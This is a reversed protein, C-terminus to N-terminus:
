CLMERRSGPLPICRSSPTSSSRRDSTSSASFSPSSPRCPSLTYPCKSNRTSAASDAPTATDTSAGSRWAKTLVYVKALPFGRDRSMSWVARSSACIIGVCALFLILLNFAFAAAAGNLGFSDQGCRPSRTLASVEVKRSSECGRWSLRCVQAKSCHIHSM